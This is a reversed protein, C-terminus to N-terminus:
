GRMSAGSFTKIGGIQRLRDIMRAGYRKSLSEVNLNGIMILRGKAIRRDVADFVATRAVELDRPPATGLEDIVLLGARDCRERDAEFRMFSHWRALQPETVYVVGRTRYHWMAWAAAVTKGVGPDGIGVWVRRENQQSWRRMSVMPATDQLTGDAIAKAIEPLIRIGSDVLAEIARARAERSERDRSDQVSREYEAIEDPSRARVKAMIADIQTKIDAMPLEPRPAIPARYTAAFMPEQGAREARIRALEREREVIALPIQREDDDM